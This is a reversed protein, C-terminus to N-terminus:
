RTDYLGGAGSMSSPASRLDQLERIEDALEDIDRQVAHRKWSLYGAYAFFVVWVVAFAAFLFPLNQSVNVM